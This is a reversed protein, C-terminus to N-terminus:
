AAGSDDLEYRGPGGARAKALCAEASKFLSDATQMNRGGTALLAIGGSVTFPQVASGTSISAHARIEAFVGDVFLNTVTLRSGADPGRVLVVFRGKGHHAVIDYSRTARKLLDGTLALADEAKEKGLSAELKDFGDIEFIALALNDQQRRALALEADVLRKYGQENWLGTLGDILTERTKTEVTELVATQSEGLNRNDMVIEAMRALDQLIEREDASMMHATRSIVCLTGIAFGETNKIPQGAYFRVQPGGKVMPNDSFRRDQTADEVVFVNSGHIAHACFSVDRPTETVNTGIRSKFWQRDGDILSLLAADARFFKKVTRTIRDLDSERPTSLLNMRQLSALREKENDPLTAPIM